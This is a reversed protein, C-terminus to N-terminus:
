MTNCDRGLGSRRKVDLNSPGVWYAQKLKYYLKTLLTSLAQAYKGHEYFYGNSM